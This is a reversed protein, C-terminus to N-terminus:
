QSQKELSLYYFNDYVESNITDINAIGMVLFKDQFRYSWEEMTTTDSINTMLMTLDFSSSWHGAPSLIGKLMYSDPVGDSNTHKYTGDKEFYIYSIDEQWWYKAIRGNDTWGVDKEWEQKYEKGTTLNYSKGTVKTIEWKGCLKEATLTTDPSVVTPEGPKTETKSCSAICLSTVLLILLATNKKM